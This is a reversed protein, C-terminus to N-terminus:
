GVSARDAGQSAAVIIQVGSVEIERITVEPAQEDTILIDVKSLPAIKALAVVGLKTHDAVVVVKRAGEVLCHDTEAEAVNPTTLGAEPHMGHVGLFLVDSNLSRLTRDAYPGVLADSPTRFSGGSLVIQGWGNEQLTLAINTSNTIFTLDKDNQQLAAAVHWTTTGASFAVTHGDGVLPLAARAIAVKEPRNLRRKQVFHPEAAAKSVPIAGGHVKRLLRRESLAELDRRITMDSVGLRESLEAVSVSGARELDNLIQQQRQEALM